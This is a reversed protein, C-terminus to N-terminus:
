GFGAVKLGKRVDPGNNGRIHERNGRKKLLYRFQHGGVEGFLDMEDFYPIGHGSLGFGVDM